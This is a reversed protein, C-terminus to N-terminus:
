LWRSESANWFQRNIIYQGRLSKSARYAEGETAFYRYTPEAGFTKRIVIRAKDGEQQEAHGPLAQTSPGQTWGYLLHQESHYGM